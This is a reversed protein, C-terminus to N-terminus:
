DLSAESDDTKIIIVEPAHVHLIITMIKTDKKILPDKVLIPGFKLIREKSVKFLTYCVAHEDLKILLLSYGRDDLPDRAFTDIENKFLNNHSIVISIQAADDQILQFDEKTSFDITVDEDEPDYTVTYAIQSIELRQQAGIFSRHDISVDPQGEVKPFVWSIKIDINSNNIPNRSEVM